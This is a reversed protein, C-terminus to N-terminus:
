HYSYNVAGVANDLRLAVSSLENKYGNFGAGKSFRRSTVVTRKLEFEKCDLYRNVISACVFDRFAHLYYGPSFTKTAIEFAAM